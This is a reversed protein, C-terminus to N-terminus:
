RGIGDNHRRDQPVCNPQPHRLPRAPLPHFRQQTRVRCRLGRLGGSRGELGVWGHTPPPAPSPRSIARRAPGPTAAFSGHYTSHDIGTRLAAARDPGVARFGDWLPPSGRHEPGPHSGCGPCALLENRLSSDREEAARLAHMPSSSQRSIREGRTPSLLHGRPDRACVMDGGKCPQSGMVFTTDSGAFVVFSSRAANRRGEGPQGLVHEKSAMAGLKRSM